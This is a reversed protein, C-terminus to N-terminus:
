FDWETCRVLFKKDEASYPLLLYHNYGNRRIGVQFPLMHLQRVKAWVSGTSAVDHLIVKGLSTILKEYGHKKFLDDSVALVYGPQTVRDVDAKDNRSKCTVPVQLVAIAAGAPITATPFLGKTHILVDEPLSDRAKRASDVAVPVSKSRQLDPVHKPLSRLASVTDDYASDVAMRLVYLKQQLAELDSLTVRSPNELKVVISRWNAHISKVQRAAKDAAHEATSLGDVLIGRETCTLEVDYLKRQADPLTVGLTYLADTIYSRFSAGHPGIWTRPLAGQTSILSLTAKATSLSSEVDKLISELHLVSTM